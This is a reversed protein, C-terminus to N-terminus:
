SGSGSGGGTLPNNAAHARIFDVTKNGVISTSYDTPKSGTFVQDGDLNWNINYYATNCMGMFRDWGPMHTGNHRCWSEMAPPNLYKGFYATVYGAQQLYTAYTHQEFDETTSNVRMCDCPHDKGVAEDGCGQHETGGKYYSDRINHHFRGSLYESRGLLEAKKKAGGRKVAEQHLWRLWNFKVAHFWCGGHLRVCKHQPNSVLRQLKKQTLRADWTFWKPSGPIGHRDIREGEVLFGDVKLSRMRCWGANYCATSGFKEGQMCISRNLLAHMYLLLRSSYREVHERKEIVGKELSKVDFTFDEEHWTSKLGFSQVQLRDVQEKTPPAKTFLIVPTTILDATDNRYHRFFSAINGSFFADWEVLWIYRPKLKQQLLWMIASPSHLVYNLEKVGQDRANWKPLCHGWINWDNRVYQRMVSWSTFALVELGFSKAFSKLDSAPCKTEDIVTVFRASNRLAMAYFRMLNIYYEVQAVTNNCHLRLMVVTHNVSGRGVFAGKALADTMSVTAAVKATKSKLLLM